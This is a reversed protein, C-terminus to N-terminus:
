TIWENSEFIEQAVKEKHISMENQMYKEVWAHLITEIFNNYWLQLFSIQAFKYM